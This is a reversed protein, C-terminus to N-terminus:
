LLRVKELPWALVQSIRYRRTRRFGAVRQEAQVAANALVAQESRMGEREQLWAQREAQWRERESEWAEREAHWSAHERAIQVQSDHYLASLRQAEHRLAEATMEGRLQSEALQELARLMSREGCPRGPGVREILAVIAAAHDRADHHTRVLDRGDQGWEPRYSDLDARLRRRDPPPRLGAIAFGGAELQAYTEPTVWGESGAQDHVYAPRGCAMAELISRGFGVVIDSAAIEGTVDLIREEGGVEKWQLEADAWAERLQSARESAGSHYNGLLLVRRPWENPEARPSFRRLDIPQRLRVVEGAHACASARALHLDNLAVTAAVVGPVAPPLHIDESSHVVFVRAATPFRGALELALGGDLGSIVADADEPLEEARAIVRVARESALEAMPGTKRTYITVAHGLRALHEALTLAYTESGGPVDFRYTALVIKM